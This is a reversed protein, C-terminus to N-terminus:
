GGEVVATKLKGSKGRPIETMVRLTVNQGAGIYRDVNRRVAADVIPREFGGAPTVRVEFHGAGLQAIQAEREGCARANGFPYAFRLVPREILEELFRM